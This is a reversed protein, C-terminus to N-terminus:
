IPTLSHTIGSSATSLNWLLSRRGLMDRGFLLCNLHKIYFVLAWPGRLLSICDLCRDILMQPDEAQTAPYSLLSSSNPQSYPHILSELHLSLKSADNDSDTLPFPTYFLEGNFLLLNGHSDQIPQLSSSSSAQTSSTGRLHLVSSFFSLPPNVINVHGSYDPGIFHNQTLCPQNGHM